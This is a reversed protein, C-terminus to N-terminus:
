VSSKACTRSASASQSAARRSATPMTKHVADVWYCYYADGTKALASAPLAAALLLVTTTIARM